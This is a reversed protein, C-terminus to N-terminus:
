EDDVTGAGKYSVATRRVTKLAVDNTGTIFVYRIQRIVDVGPPIRDGWFIAGGVSMVTLVLGALSNGVRM